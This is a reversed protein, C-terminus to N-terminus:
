EKSLTSTKEEPQGLRQVLVERVCLEATRLRAHKEIHLGIRGKAPGPIRVVGVEEGNLWVQFRDGRAEVSITNWGERDVIDERLNVLALGKGSVLVSGTYAPPKDRDFIEIRPGKDLDAARLWIGARIPWANRFIVSLQYDEYLAETWLDGGKSNAKLDSIIRGQEVIWSADGSPRWGSLDRGNFANTWEAGQDKQLQSEMKTALNHTGHCDTCVSKATIARGNPRIRGEWKKYFTEVAETDIHDEFGYVYRETGAKHCTPNSCMRDVESRGFLLDPKTMLTEDEMHEVSPGHCEDCTIGAELHVMSIEETKLSPHCVYCKTNENPKEGQSEGALSATLVWVFAVCIFLWGLLSLKTQTNSRM